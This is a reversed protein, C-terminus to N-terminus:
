LSAHAARFRAPRLGTLDEAENGHVIEAAVLRAVAPALTIGSHMVVVYAGSVGPIPGIVPLGDVPLPRVGLRVSVLRVGPVSVTATLRRLMKQGARQLDEHGVEGDYDAAVLLEGDAAERVELHPTAVLTRVLGAPATFRMLLAPSPAVPLGFGLSACLVPADVGATVVVTEAPVFGTSAQVGVVRGDRLTLATVVSSAVLEAGHDQAAGVLAQTVAVPDIAGHDPLHLARTPRARVRLHPELRAVEAAELLREDPGLRADAGLPEEDWVLAGRWHVQVGPVEAEMRRYEPLARRRLPTSADPPDGGRPRGIWGFSDATVGSAPVSKDLLVVEAGARASEYAVAAGVIGAGVVVVRAM